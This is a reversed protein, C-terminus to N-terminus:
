NGFGLDRSPAGKEVEEVWDLLIGLLWENIEGGTQTVEANDRQYAAVIRSITIEDTNITLVSTLLPKQM